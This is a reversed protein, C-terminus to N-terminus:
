AKLPITVSPPLAVVLGAPTVSVNSLAVAAGNVSGCVKDVAAKPAGKALIAAGSPDIMQFMTPGVQCILNGEAVIQQGTALAHAATAQTVPATPILGTCGGLALLAAIYALRISHM